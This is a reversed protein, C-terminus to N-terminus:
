ILTGLTSPVDKDGDSVLLMYKAEFKMEKDNINPFKWESTDVRPITKSM